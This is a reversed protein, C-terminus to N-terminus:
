ERPYFYVKGNQEKKKICGISEMYTLNTITQLFPGANNRNTVETFDYISKSTEYATLGENPILDRIQQWRKLYHAKIEVIRQNLNGIMEGHGAMVYLASCDEIRKLSKLYDNLSNEGEYETLVITNISSLVHDGVILMREGESYFCFQDPAHGPTWIAKFVFDGLQIESRDEFVYDPEFDYDEPRRLFSKVPIEPGGHKRLFSFTPNSNPDLIFSKTKKLEIQTQRSLWVPAHFQQQFWGALGGHDPHIHTLVVKEVPIDGSLIETWVAKAEETNFGTDIITYGNQGKILYCNVENMEIPLPIKVQYVMDTIKKIM